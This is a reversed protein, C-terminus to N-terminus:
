QKKTTKLAYIIVKTVIVMYLIIAEIFWQNIM